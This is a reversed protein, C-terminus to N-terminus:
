DFLEEFFSKKRKYKYGDGYSPASYQTQQQQHQPRQASQASAQAEEKQSRDLIKDLEGKDLWIGRCEPCYDIEVGKRESMVLDKDKCHPCKM